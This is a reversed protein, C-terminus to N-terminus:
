RVAGGVGRGRAPTPKAQEQARKLPDARGTNRDAGACGPLVWYWRTENAEELEIVRRKTM